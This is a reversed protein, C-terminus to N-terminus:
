KPMLNIKEEKDYSLLVSVIRSNGIDAIFLRRDSETALFRPNLLAVEDGGISNTNEPGSGVILPKGDDINGYQGIRLITNGNTDVVVVGYRDVEPLFSRKFFDLTPRSTAVCDCHIRKGDIGIGGYIWAADQVWSKGIYVENDLDFDRNPKENGLPLVAKTALIRTKGPIAKILTCSIPNFYPKGNFNKSAAMMVYISGDADMSIGSSIGLGPLADNSVIKGHEDWIYVEWGAGRGKYSLPLSPRKLGFKTIEKEGAGHVFPNEAIVAIMGKPSVAMGGLHLMCGGVGIFSLGSVVDKRILVSTNTGVKSKEVGYDFPVERFAGGALEFRALFDHTRMYAYGKIDFAMDEADFPCPIIQCKETAVNIEVLDSFSKSHEPSPQLHEGVYLNKNNPNFYIRQRGHHAPRIKAVKDEALKSFNLIEELKSDKMTFLRTNSKSINRPRFTESFSTSFWVIPEPGNFDIAGTGALGGNDLAISVDPISFTNIIEPAEFSKIHFLKSDIPAKQNDHPVQFSFVFFDKGKPNFCVQVPKLVKIYKILKKNEDYVHIRDNVFDSIYLRNESDISIGSVVNFEGDGSGKSKDKEFSGLFAEIKSNEKLNIRGVVNLGGRFHWNKRTSYGAFVYGTTYLYKGDNSIASAFPSVELGQEGIDPVFVSTKNNFTLGGEPIQGQKTVLNFTKNILYISNDRISVTTASDSVSDTPWAAKQDLLGSTFYTRQDMGFKLPFRKNDQPFTYWNFDKVKELQANPIPCITKLYKGERSFLKLSEGQGGDYVYVGEPQPLIVQGMGGFTSNNRKYPSWYLTKELSAKLGLSVRVVCEGNVYEGLDNKGDWIIKQELSKVQFPVPAKEGLLGSALHRIINGQTNEIAVTVDCYDSVAFSIEKSNEGIAKIEPKKSFTCNDKRKVKLADYDDSYVTLSVLFSLLLLLYSTKV